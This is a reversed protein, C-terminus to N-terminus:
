KKKNLDLLYQTINTQCHPCIEPEMSVEGTMMMTMGHKMSETVYYKKCSPCAREVILSNKGCTPCKPRIFMPDMDSQSQQAEAASAELVARPVVMEKDCSTCYVHFESAPKHKVPADGLMSYVVGILAGVIILVLVGGFIYEMKNGDNRGFKFSGLNLAM